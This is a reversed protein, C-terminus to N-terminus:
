YGGADVLEGANRTALAQWIGAPPLNTWAGTADVVAGQPYGTQPDFPWTSVTEKVFRVSSDGLLVNLGGPHLSSASRVLPVASSVAAKRYLNPPLFATVLTDGWNGSIIWGYKRSVPEAEDDFAHLPQLAREAAIATQSLGDSFSATRIPGADSFSGNVQALVSGPVSCGSDLRPIADVMLSGYMGAYSGRSVSYPEGVRQLGLSILTLSDGGPLVVGSGPDDPCNFVAIVTQRITSNEFGFVTLEHNIAYFLPSQDLGPLLRLLFSEDVLPSTCPPNAGSYRPDYGLVRGPPLCGEATEYVHLGLGIQRLNNACQARRSAERASQVAPLILSALIGVIALVVLIEVLTFGRTKGSSIRL